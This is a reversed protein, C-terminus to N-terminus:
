RDEILGPPTEPGGADGCPAVEPEAGQTVCLDTETVAYVTEGAKLKAANGPSFLTYIPVLGVKLIDDAKGGKGKRQIEAAVPLERGALAISKLAVRLAGRQLALGSKKTELVVGAARVGKDALVSGDSLTITRDIMFHVEDGPQARNGDVERLVMLELQSGKALMRPAPLATTAAAEAALLLWAAMM